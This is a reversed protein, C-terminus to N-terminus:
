VVHVTFKRPTFHLEVGGGVQHVSGPRATKVAHLALQLQPLMPRTGSAQMIITALLECGVDSSVQTLLHRSSNHRVTIRELERDIERRLQLQRARLGVVTQVAAAAVVPHHQQTTSIKQRLRNRLYRPSSNTSDEVWELRHQLAYAYLQQKTLALLPRHVGSRTLVCLGRWGTGRQINIVISEVVDNQHHATVITAKHKKAESLLFAYRAERAQQESAHAGLRLQVSVYPLGYQKALGAVFRADAGSDERMGHDVHAVISHRVGQSKGKSQKALMDLLVVSDIGGSVAVLYNM